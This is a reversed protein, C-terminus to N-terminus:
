PVLLEALRTRRPRPQRRVAEALRVVGDPIVLSVHREGARLAAYVEPRTLPGDGALVVVAAEARAGPEELLERVVTEAAGSAALAAALPRTGREDRTLVLVDSPATGFTRPISDTVLQQVRHVAEQPSSATVEVVARDGSPGAYSGTAAQAAARDTGSEPAPDGARLVPCIGSAAVDLAVAGPVRALPLAPDIGLVLVADEPLDALVELIQEIGVLHAPDLMVLRSSPGVAQQAAARRPEPDVGVAVGLRNEGALGLLADAVMEEAEALEGVALAPQGQWTVEVVEGGGLASAIAGEGAGRARLVDAAIDAPVVTSGRRAAERLLGVVPDTAGTGEMTM